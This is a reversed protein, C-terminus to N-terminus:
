WKSHVMGTCPLDYGSFMLVVINEGLFFLHSGVLTKLKPELVDSVLEYVFFLWPTTWNSGRFLEVKSLSHEFSRNLTNLSWIARLLLVPVGYDWLLEM